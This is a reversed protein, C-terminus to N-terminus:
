LTIDALMISASQCQRLIEHHEIHRRILDSGAHCDRGIADPRVLLVVVLEARRLSGFPHLHRAPERVPLDEWFESAPFREAASYLYTDCHYPVISAGMARHLLM